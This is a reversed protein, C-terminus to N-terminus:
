ARPKRRLLGRIERWENPCFRGALGLYVLVGAGMGGSVRLVEDPFGPRLVGALLHDVLVVVASMLLTLLVAPALGSMLRQGHPLGMRSRFATLLLWANVTTAITTALALGLEAFPRVLIVDFMLNLAVAWLGAVVPARIEGVAYCARALLMVMGAAPIGIAYGILAWSTADGSHSTFNGGEVLLGVIPRALVILGAAAPLTLLTNVRVALGATATVSAADGRATLRALTPFVASVLAATVLGQPFQMIRLGYYLHTTGGDGLAIWAVTRDALLNVQAAGMGILMPLTLAIVASLEPSRRPKVFRFGVGLSRMRPLHWLFQVVGSVLIAGAIIFGQKARLAELEEPTGAASGVLFAAAGVGAVWMLNLIVSALAPVAFEGMTNMVGMFQAIVCIFALYPLLLQTYQLTLQVKFLEKGTWQAVLEAPVLAVLLALGLSLLTLFVAVSSIVENSVQRARERGERELVRSYTPVFASSLAGEGFLRRFANPITWAWTLADNVAGAGLLYATAKDRALGLVRSLMTLASVTWASRLFHRDATGEARPATPALPAATPEGPTTTTSLSHDTV